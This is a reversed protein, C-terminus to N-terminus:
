NLEWTALMANPAALLRALVAPDPPKTMHHNFGAEKSRNRDEAQGYGTLAM